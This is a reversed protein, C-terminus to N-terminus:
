DGKLFPLPQISRICHMEMLKLSDSYKESVGCGCDQKFDNGTKAVNMQNKPYYFINAADAV